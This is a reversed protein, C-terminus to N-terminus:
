ETEVVAGTTRGAGTLAAYEVNHGTTSRHETSRREADPESQSVSETPCDHCVVHYMSTESRDSDSGDAKAM